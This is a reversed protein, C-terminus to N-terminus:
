SLAVILSFWLLTPSSVSSFQHVTALSIPVLQSSPSFSTSNPDCWQLATPDLETHECPDPIVADTVCVEPFTETLISACLGQLESETLPTLCPLQQCNPTRPSRQMMSARAMQHEAPLEMTPIPGQKPHNLLRPEPGTNQSMSKSCITSTSSKRQNEVSPESDSRTGRKKASTISSPMSKTGILEQTKSHFSVRHLLTRVCKPGHRLSSNTTANGPQCCPINKTTSTFCNVSTNGDELELLMWSTRSPTM